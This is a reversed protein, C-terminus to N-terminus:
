QDFTIVLRGADVSCSLRGKPDNYLAELYRAYITPDTALNNIKEAGLGQGIEYETFLYQKDHPVYM